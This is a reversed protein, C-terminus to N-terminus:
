FSKPMDYDSIHKIYQELMTDTMTNTYEKYDYNM